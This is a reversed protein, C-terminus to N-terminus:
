NSRKLYLTKTLLSSGMWIKNCNLNFWSCIMMILESNGWSQRRRKSGKKLDLLSKGWTRFKRMLSTKPGIAIRKLVRFIKSWTRFLKCTNKGKNIKQNNVWRNWYSYKSKKHNIHTRCKNLTLTWNNYKQLYPKLIKNKIQSLAKSKLFWM